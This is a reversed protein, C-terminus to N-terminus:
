SWGPWCRRGSRSPGSRTCSCSNVPMNGQAHLSWEARIRNFDRLVTAASYHRAVGHFANAKESVFITELSFPTLSRLLAQLVLAASMWALVLWWEHPGTLIDVSDPLAWALVMAVLFVSLSQAIFPQLYGYVWRGEYSGLLVARTALRYSVVLSLISGLAV